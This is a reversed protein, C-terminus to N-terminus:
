RTGRGCDETGVEGLRIESVELARLGNARPSPAARKWAASRSLGVTLLYDHGRLETSSRSEGNGNRKNRKGDQRARVSWVLIMLPSIIEGRALVLPWREVM